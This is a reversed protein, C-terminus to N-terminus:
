PPAAPGRPSDEVALRVEPAQGRLRVCSHNEALGEGKWQKTVLRPARPSSVRPSTLPIPQPAPHTCMVLISSLRVVPCLSPLSLSGPALSDPDQHAKYQHGSCSSASSRLADPHQTPSIGAM